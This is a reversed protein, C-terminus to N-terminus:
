RDPESAGRVELYDFASKILDGFNCLRNTAIFVSPQNSNTQVFARQGEPNQYFGFATGEKSHYKVETYECAESQMKAALDRMFVMAKMIEDLEDFDVHDSGVTTGNEDEIEVILGFTKKSNSSNGVTVITATITLRFGYECRMSGVKHQDKRVLMGKTVMFKKLESGSDQQQPKSALRLLTKTTKLFEAVSIEPGDELIVVDRDSIEQQAHFERIEEETHPGFQQGDKQIHLPM